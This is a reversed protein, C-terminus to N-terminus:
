ECTSILSTQTCKLGAACDNDKYCQRDKGQPPRCYGTSKGICVLGAACDTDDPNGDSTMGCERGECSLASCGGPQSFRKCVQGAPCADDDECQVGSSTDGPHRRCVHPPSSFCYLGEQCSDDFECPESPGGRGFCAYSTMPSSHAEDQECFLGEACEANSALSSCPECVAAPSACVKKADGAKVPRCVLGEACGGWTLSGCSEGEQLIKKDPATVAPM